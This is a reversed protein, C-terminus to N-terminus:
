GSHIPSWFTTTYPKPYQQLCIFFYRTGGFLARSHALPALLRKLHNVFYQVADFYGIKSCVVQINSKKTKFHQQRNIDLCM